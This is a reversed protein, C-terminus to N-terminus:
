PSMMAEVIIVDNGLHNNLYETTPSLEIGDTIAMLDIMKQLKAFYTHCFWVM